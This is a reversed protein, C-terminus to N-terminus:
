KDFLDDLVMKGSVGMIFSTAISLVYSLTDYGNVIELINIVLLAAAAMFSVIASMLGNKM